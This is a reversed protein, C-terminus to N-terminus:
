WTRRLGAASTPAIGICGMESCDPMDHNYVYALTMNEKIDQIDQEWEEKYDSVFLFSDMKGINTYSRIATFVLADYKKEFEKVRELDEGELWFHAGVPPESISVFGDREFHKITPPFIRLLKMRKVAEIKKEKVSINM